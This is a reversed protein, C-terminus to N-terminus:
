AWWVPLLDKLLMVRDESVLVLCESNRTDIQMILERCRGCPPIVNKANVAVMRKVVTERSKLMASMASHEACFGIGCSLDMCIGTYINGTESELAAGVTGATLWEESLKFEGTVAKAASVLADFAQVSKDTTDM